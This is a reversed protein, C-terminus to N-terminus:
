KLRYLTINLKSDQLIKEYQSWNGGALGCGILYPMAVSTIGTNEIEELCMRFWKLRNEATDDYEQRYYKAYVQPKSPLFQAFMCIIHPNYENNEIDTNSPSAILISGPKSYEVSNRGLGVPKRQSYVNGYKWKNAISQSLGHPKVTVCNCQQAIYEEGGKLLDGEVIKVIVM